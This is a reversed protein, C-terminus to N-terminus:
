ECPSGSETFTMYGPHPKVVCSLWIFSTSTHPRTELTQRSMLDDLAVCWVGARDKLDQPLRNAEPQPTGSM